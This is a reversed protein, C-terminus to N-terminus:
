YNFCFCEALRICIQMVVFVLGHSYSLM